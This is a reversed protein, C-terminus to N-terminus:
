YSAFRYKYSFSDPGGSDEIRGRGNTIIEDTMKAAEKM